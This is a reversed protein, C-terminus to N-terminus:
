PEAVVGPLKRDGARECLWDCNCGEGRSDNIDIENETGKTLARAVQDVRAEHQLIDLSAHFAKVSNSCKYRSQAMSDDHPARRRRPKAQAPQRTRSPLPSGSPSAPM